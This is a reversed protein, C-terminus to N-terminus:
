ETPELIFPCQKRGASFCDYLRGAFCALITTHQQQIANELLAFTSDDISCHLTRLAYPKIATKRTGIWIRDADDPDFKIRDVIVEDSAILSRGLVTRKLKSVAAQSLHITTSPLIFDDAM